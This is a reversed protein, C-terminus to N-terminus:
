RDTAEDRKMRERTDNEKERVEEEREGFRKASEQYNPLM